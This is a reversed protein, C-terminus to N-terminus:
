ASIKGVAPRAVAVLVAYPNLRRELAARGNTNNGTSSCEPAGAINVATAIAINMTTTSMPTKAGLVVPRESSCRAARSEDGSAVDEFWRRASYLRSEETSRRKTRNNSGRHPRRGTDDLCRGRFFSGRRPAAGPGLASVPPGVPTGGVVGGVG